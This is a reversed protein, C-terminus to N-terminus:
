NVVIFFAANIPSNNVDVIHVERASAPCNLKSESNSVFLNGGPSSGWELTTLPTVQSLNITGSKPTICYLGPLPHTAKNVNKARSIGGGGQILACVRTRM